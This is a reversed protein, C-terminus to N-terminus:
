PLRLLVKVIGPNCGVLPGALLGQLCGARGGQLQALHVHLALLDGAVDGCTLRPWEDRQWIAPIDEPSEVLKGM